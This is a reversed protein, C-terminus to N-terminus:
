HGIAQNSDAIDKTDINSHLNNKPLLTGAACKILSFYNFISDTIPAESSDEDRRGRLSKAGNLM